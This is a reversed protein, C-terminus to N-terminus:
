YKISKLVKKNEKETKDTYIFDGAFQRPITFCNVCFNLSKVAGTLRPQRVHFVSRNTLPASQVSIMDLLM